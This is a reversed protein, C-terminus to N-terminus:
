RGLLIGLAMRGGFAAADARHVTRDPDRFVFEDRTAPFLLEGSARVFWAGREFRLGVTMGAAAWWRDAATAEVQEGRGRAAL